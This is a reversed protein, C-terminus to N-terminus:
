GPAGTNEKKLYPITASYHNLVKTSLATELSWHCAKPLYFLHLPLHGQGQSLPPTTSTPTYLHSPVSNYAKVNLVCCLVLNLTSCISYTFALFSSTVSDTFNILSSKQILSIQFPGPPQPNSDYLPM